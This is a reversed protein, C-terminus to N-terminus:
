ICLSLICSMPSPFAPLLDDALPFVPKQAAPKESCIVARVSRQQKVQLLSCVPYIKLILVGVVMSKVSVYDISM